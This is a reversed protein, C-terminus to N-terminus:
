GSYMQKKLLRDVNVRRLCGSDFDQPMDRCESQGSEVKTARLCPRSDRSAPANVNM